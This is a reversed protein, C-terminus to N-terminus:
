GSGSRVRDTDRSQTAVTVFERRSALIRATERGCCFLMDIAALDPVFSGYPQGYVPHDFRQARLEIGAAHFVEPDMYDHETGITSTLHVSSGAGELLQVLRQMRDGTHALESARVIRVESGLYDCISSILDLNLEVLWEHDRRYVRELVPFVEDFYPCRRYALTIRHLHRERLPQDTAIRVDKIASTGPSRLPVTLWDPGSSMKIKQRSHFESRTYQATDYAIYVDSALIKDLLKLWPMFNPQHVSVITM